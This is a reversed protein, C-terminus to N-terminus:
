HKGPKPWIGIPPIPEGLICKNIDIDTISTIADGELNLSEFTDADPVFRLTGNRVVYIKQNKANRM